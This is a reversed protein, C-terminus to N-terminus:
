ALGLLSGQFPSTPTTLSGMHSVQYTLVSTTKLCVIDMLSSYSYFNRFAERWLKEVKAPRYIHTPSSIVIPYLPKTYCLLFGSAVEYVEPTLGWVRRSGEPYGEPPLESM